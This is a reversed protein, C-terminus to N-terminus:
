KRKTENVRKPENKCEQTQTQTAPQSQIFEASRRATSGKEYLHILTIINKFAHLTYARSIVNDLQKM